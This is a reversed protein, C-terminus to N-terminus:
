VMRGGEKQGQAPATGRYDADEVDGEQAQALVPLRAATHHVERQRELRRQCGPLGPADDRERAVGRAVDRAQQAYGQVLDRDNGGRGTVDEAPRGLRAGDRVHLPAVSPEKEGHPHERGLLVELAHQAGERLHTVARCLQHQRAPRRPVVGGRHQTRERARQAHFPADDERTGGVVLRQAREVM